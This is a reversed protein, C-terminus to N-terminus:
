LVLMADGYSYFRYGAAVAERYASLVLERGGFACVLMLLSSKPLHFNTMLVDVARFRHSGPHIFLTATGDGAVITEETAASELARVSTTGVVVLRRGADRAANLRAAAAADITYREPDVSHAEVDDVRVPKFTGYGVHLTVAVREVGMTDLRELLTPTFHLGATPAAISGRTRAYVTQYRDRDASEDPRHIYPPLPIHGIADVAGDLDGDDTWLRVTRRGFGGRGEIEAHISRGPAQEESTLVVRAGPKLKQGPHVLAEWRGDEVRELLLVEVRGGSPTRHGILRAPFVRTENVVLVDDPRLWAPLDSIHQHTIRGSAREVVLLRSAGREAPPAQAILADPLDFDFESVRMRRHYM